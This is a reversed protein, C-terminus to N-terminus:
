KLKPEITFSVMEVEGTVAIAQEAKPMETKQGSVLAPQVAVHKRVLYSLCCVVVAICLVGVILVKM